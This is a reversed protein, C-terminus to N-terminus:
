EAKMHKNFHKSQLAEPPKLALLSFKVGSLHTEVWLKEFKEVSLINYQHTPWFFVAPYSQYLVTALCLNISSVASKSSVEEDKKESAQWRM